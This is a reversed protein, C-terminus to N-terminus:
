EFFEFARKMWGEIFVAQSPKRKVLRAFFLVREKFFAKRISLQDNRQNVSRATNPGLKGDVAVTGLVRQLWKVAIAPGSNVGWDFLHEALKVDNLRGFGPRVFYLEKYIAAAEPKTLAKIEAISARRNGTARKYTALTIGYKTPGGKDAPHNVYGGERRIVAAIMEDVTM